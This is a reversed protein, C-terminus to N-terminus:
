NLLLFDTLHLIGNTCIIDGEIIKAGGVIVGGEYREIALHRSNLNIIEDTQLLDHIKLYGVVLNAGVIERLRDKYDNEQLLTEKLNSFAADSPAFLTFRGSNSLVEQFDSQYILWLFWNIRSDEQM